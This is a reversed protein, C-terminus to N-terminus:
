TPSRRLPPRPRPISARKPPHTTGAIPSSTRTPARAAGESCPPSPAAVASEVGKEAACRECLHLEKPTGDIVQVLKLVSEREKCNDCVMM